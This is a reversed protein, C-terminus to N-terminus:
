APNDKRIRQGVSRGGAHRRHHGHPQAHHREGCLEALVGHNHQIQRLSGVRDPRLVRHLGCRWLRQQRKSRPRVRGGRTGPSVAACRWSRRRRCRHCQGGYFLRLGPSLHRRGICLDQVGACGNVLRRGAAVVVSGIGVRHIVATILDVREDGAPSFLGPETHCIQALFDLNLTAFSTPPVASQLAKAVSWPAPQPTSQQALDVAVYDVRVRIRRYHALKGAAANFALPYFVVRQRLQGRFIYQEATQAIQAPYFGDSSYASEDIVFVEAVQSTDGQDAAVMEPVPYVRYGVHHRVDTELVTLQLTQEAPVDLLIGKLPLQPKGTEATFGHIYEGVRLQEFEEGEEVVQQAEFSDTRLELTLGSDDASLVEVGRGLIHSGGAELRELRWDEDGDIIGDGDSDPNYPDTGYVYEQMNTLGDGDPDLNADNVTPDLGHAIEWDDPMGDGDWDVCIPGHLTRKGHIDIDELKYYYLKGRTVARDLYAYSLSGTMYVAAPIVKDTLRSYPGQPRDARYLHFGLNDSESATQWDLKVDIGKGTATFTLLNVATAGSGINVLAYQDYTDLATGGSKVLRFCFEDGDAANDNAQISFEIETFKNQDLSISATEDDDDVLRGNVFSSGDPDPLADDTGDDINSTTDTGSDNINDTGYIDWQTESADNIAYYTAAACESGDAKTVEAVQLEYATSATSTGENSVLFRLRLYNSGGKELGVYKVNEHKAFSAATSSTSETAVLTRESVLATGSPTLYQVSIADSAGVGEIFAHSAIPLSTDPCSSDEEARRETHDIQVGADFLSAQMVNNANESNEISSTFFALYNGAGPTVSMSGM